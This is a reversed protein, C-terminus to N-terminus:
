PRAEPESYAPVTMAENQLHAALYHAKALGRQVKGSTTRPIANRPVLGVHTPWVGTRRAVHAQITRRLADADLDRDRPQECIVFLQDTGHDPDSVGFAVVRGPRVGPVEEAAWEFESPPYNQGRIIILDKTRGTVFLRGQRLYGLDGTWLWGDRLAVGTGEPLDHYGAMVSPGAVLVHGVHGEPLADGGEGAIRLRTGEMPPGCDCVTTADEDQASPVAEHRLSLARRSLREVSLPEGPEHMAVCLSAEALGYCPVLAEPRFGCVAFRAAFQRLVAPSIPEAGCMAARWSTLDLGDLAAASVRETALAYAFNPAPSLTGRHDSIARLWNAPDRLFRFPDLMVCRLHWYAPVFFGGILGMDHFLPLWSVMVDTAPDARLRRGIQELNALINRQTLLVCKPMGTSGSTAQIVAIDEGGQAVPVWRRPDWTAIAAPTWVMAPGATAALAEGVDDGAIIVSAELHRAVACIREAAQV